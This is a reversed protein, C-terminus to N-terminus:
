RAAEITASGVVRTEDYLVMTQGPAVGHTAEDLSVSVRDGDVGVQGPLAAGHARYQVLCRTPAMLPESTWTVRVGTLESVALHERPGVIVANDKPEIRLVYRPRGDAAPVRLDLGKRQGVTFGYSGRHGGLRQGVEDVIPGDQKGLHDRLFGQTDGDPIFCIDYSDPKAAVKLGLSAAEARVKPKPTDALPFLCHRLQQQNLVGLVYSQDKLPDAARHLEVIGGREVLRAYHGTAVADFGLALGRELVAAFKIRENCRLCPNPTRGARYEDLFDAVVEEQFRESFDWVYFPIDLADAARRADHADELSCCGRTGERFPRPNRDLALHVGTVDHGAQVLRAAAVASDVGGSMAALVKM